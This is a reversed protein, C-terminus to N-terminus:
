YLLGIKNKALIFERFRGGYGYNFFLYIKDVKRAFPQYYISKIKFISTHNYECECVLEYNNYDNYEVITLYRVINNYEIEVQAGICIGRKIFENRYKDTTQENVIVYGLSYKWTHDYISLYFLLQQNPLQGDARTAMFQTDDIFYDIKFEFNIVKNNADTTRYVFASEDYLESRLVCDCIFTFPSTKSLSEIRKRFYNGLEIYVNGDIARLEKEVVKNLRLKLIVSLQEVTYNNKIFYQINKKTKSKDILNYNQFKEDQTFMDKLYPITYGAFVKYIDNKCNELLYGFRGNIEQLKVKQKISQEVDNQEILKRKNSLQTTYKQINSIM